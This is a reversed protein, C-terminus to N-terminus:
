EDGGYLLDIGPGSYVVDSGLAADLEDDGDLGHMEDEGYGGYLTDPGDTGSLLGGNPCGPVDNTVMSGWNSLNITRTGECRDDEAAAGRSHLALFACGILLAGVM